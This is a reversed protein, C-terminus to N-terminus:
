CTNNPHQKRDDKLEQIARWSSELGERLESLDRRIEELLELKSLKRDISVLVEEQGAEEAPVADDQETVARNPEPPQCSGMTEEWVMEFYFDIFAELEELSSSGWQDILAQLGGSECLRRLTRERLAPQCLSRASILDHEVRTTSQTHSSVLHMTDPRHSVPQVLGESSLSVHNQLAPVPVRLTVKPVRLGSLLSFLYSMFRDRDVM